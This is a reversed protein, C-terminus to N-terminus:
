ADARSVWGLLLLGRLTWALTRPWNTQVLEAILGLDQGAGLRNHLPVSLFATSLWAVGVLGAAVWAWVRREPPAGLGLAVALGLEAVMLPGVLLTIRTSHEAHFRAWEAAGVRAFLPYHVVQITWILGVLMWTVVLNGLLLSKM